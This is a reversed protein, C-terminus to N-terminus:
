KGPKLRKGPSDQYAKDSNEAALPAGSLRTAIAGASSAMVRATLRVLAADITRADATVRAHSASAVDAILIKGSAADNIQYACHIAAETRIRIGGAIRTPAGVTEQLFTIRGTLIYDPARAEAPAPATSAAHAPVDGEPATAAKEPEAHEPDTEGPAVDEPAVDEPVVEEPAAPEAEAEPTEPPTGNTLPEVKLANERPEFGSAAPTAPAALAAERSHLVAFGARQLAYVIQDRFTEALHAENEQVAPLTFSRVEIAADAPLVFPAARVPAPTFAMLVATALAPIIHLPVRHTLPM